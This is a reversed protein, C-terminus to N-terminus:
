MFTSYVMCYLDIDLMKYVSVKTTTYLEPFTVMQAFHAAAELGLFMLPGLPEWNVM